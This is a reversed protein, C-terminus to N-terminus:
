KGRVLVGSSPDVNRVQHGFFGTIASGPAASFEKTVEFRRDREAVRNGVVFTRGWNTSLKVMNLSGGQSFWEPAGSNDRPFHQWIEIKDIVEGGPGNVPFSARHSQRPSISRGFRRCEAPVEIDFSFDMVVWAARCCTVIVQTLHPLYIGGPGGFCCWFLPNYGGTYFQRSVYFKENLSVTLPPIDPYWIASRRFGDERDLSANEAKQAIM